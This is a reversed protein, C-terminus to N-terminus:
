RWEELEVRGPWRVYLRRDSGADLEEVFRTGPLGNLPLEALVSSESLSPPPSLASSSSASSVRLRLLFSVVSRLEAVAAANDGGDSSGGEGLRGDFDLRVEESRGTLRAFVGGIDADCGLDGVM